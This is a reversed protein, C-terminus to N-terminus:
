RDRHRYVHELQLFEIQGLMAAEIGCMSNPPEYFLGWGLDSYPGLVLAAMPIVELYAMLSLVGETLYAIACIDPLWCIDVSM